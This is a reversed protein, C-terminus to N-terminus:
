RGRGTHVPPRLRPGENDIVRLLNTPRFASGLTGPTSSPPSASPMRATPCSSRCCSTRMSAGTDASKYLRDTHALVGEMMAALGPQSADSGDRKRMDVGHRQM